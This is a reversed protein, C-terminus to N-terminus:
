SLGTLLRSSDTLVKSQLRQADARAKSWAGHSAYIPLVDNGDTRPHQRRYVALTEQTAEFTMGAKRRADEVRLVALWKLADYPPEAAKARPSPRYQRAEKRAWAEFEKIVAEVGYLSFDTQVVYSNEYYARLIEPSGGQVRKLFDGLKRVRLSPIAYFSDVVKARAAKTLTGWAQPFLDRAAHRYIAPCYCNRAPTNEPLAGQRGANPSMTNRIQRAYEWHSAIRCEGVVVTRFDWEERAPLWNLDVTSERM